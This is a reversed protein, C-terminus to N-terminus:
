TVILVSNLNGNEDLEKTPNGPDLVWENDIFYKYYYKGSNLKIQFVFTGNESYEMKWEDKKWDNFSGAIFVDTKGYMEEIKFTTGEFSTPRYGMVAYESTKAKVSDFLDAGIEAIKRRTVIGKDPAFLIGLIAGAGAGALVSTLVKGSGM